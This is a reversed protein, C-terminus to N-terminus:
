KSSYKFKQQACLIKEFTELDKIIEADPDTISFTKLDYNVIKPTYSVAKSFYALM